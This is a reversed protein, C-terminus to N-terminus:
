PTAMRMSNMNAIARNRAYQFCMVSKPYFGRVIESTRARQQKTGSKYKYLSCYEDM